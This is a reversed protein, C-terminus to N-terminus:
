AQGEDEEEPEAGSYPGKRAKDAKGKDKGKSLGKGGLVAEAEGTHGLGKLVAAGILEKALTRDKVSGAGTGPTSEGGGQGSARSPEGDVGADKGKSLGKGGM